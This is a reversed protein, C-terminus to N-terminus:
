PNILKKLAPSPTLQLEKDLLTKYTEYHRVAEAKKQLALYCKIIKSNTEEHLPEKEVVKQYINLAKVHDNKNSWYAGLINLVM